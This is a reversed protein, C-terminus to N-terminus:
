SERLAPLKLGALVILMGLGVMGIACAIETGAPAYVLANQSEVISPMDFVPLQFGSSMLAIRKAAVGLLVAIAGIAPTTGRRLKPIAFVVLGALYLVMQIWSLPALQGTLYLTRAAETSCALDFAFMLADCVVLAAGAKAIPAADRGKWVALLAEAATGCLAGTVVFWPLLISAHWTEHAPQSCLIWADVCLVFVGWALVVASWGRKEMLSPKFTCVLSLIIAVPLALVDWFLPSAPHPSTLLEFMRLPSGLDITIFVGALLLSAFAVWSLEKGLDLDLSRLGLARPAAAMILCGAGIGAFLMFFSLYIGWPCFEVPRHLRHRLAGRFLAGRGRHGASGRDSDRHQLSKWNAKYEDGSRGLRHLLGISQHRPRASAAHRQQGRVTELGRIRSRRLRRLLPSQRPVGRRLRAFTRRRRARQVDRMKEVVHVQHEEVTAEGQRLDIYYQPEDWNYSRVGEYPCASMCMRCGICRDYDQMVIGTEPDKYTAGVPCVEACAPKECHQCAVPYFTMSCNPFTGAATDPGEGGDVFVHNWLVGNPLNNSQKCKVVCTNCGMCARTDIVMGYRM